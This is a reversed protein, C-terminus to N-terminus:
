ETKSNPCNRGLARTQSVDCRLSLVVGLFESLSLGFLGDVEFAASGSQRIAGNVRGQSVLQLVSCRPKTAGMRRHSTITRHRRMETTLYRM